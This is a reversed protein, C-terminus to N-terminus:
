ELPPWGMARRWVMLQGIHLAEHVHMLYVLARATTEFGEAWRPLGPPQSLTDTSVTELLQRAEDHNARYATLLADRGPYQSPDDVPTSGADYRETHRATAPDSVPQGRLLSLIAPHYHILHALTWAPHNIAGAAQRTMADDPIDRFLAELQQRNQQWGASLLEAEPMPDAKM